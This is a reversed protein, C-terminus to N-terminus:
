GARISLKRSRARLINGWVGALYISLLTPNASEAFGLGGVTSYRTEPDTILVRIDSVGSSDVSGGWTVEVAEANPGIIGTLIRHASDAMARSGPFKELSGDFTVKMRTYRTMLFVHDEEDIWGNEIHTSAIEQIEARHEHYAKRLSEEAFDRAGYRSYLLGATVVCTIRQDDSLADFALCDSDSLYRLESDPFTIIKAVSRSGRKSLLNAKM